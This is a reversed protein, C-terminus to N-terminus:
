EASKVIIYGKRKKEAIKNRVFDWLDARNDFKKILTRGKNAPNIKGFRITLWIENDRKTKIDLYAYGFMEYFKSHGDTTNELRIFM